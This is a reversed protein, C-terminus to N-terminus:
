AEHVKQNLLDPSQSTSLLGKSLYSFHDGINQAFNLNHTIVITSIGENKIDYLMKAVNEIQQQDLNNTPEDLILFYPKLVFARALAVRQQEGGSIFNPYQDRLNTIAFKKLSTLALHEAEKKDMKLSHVLSFTINKLVTMHPFLNHNQFVVGIKGFLAQPYQSNASIKHDKILISGADFHLLGAIIKMLTTKGAGSIGCIVFIESKQLQFSVNKLIIRSNISKKINALQLICM